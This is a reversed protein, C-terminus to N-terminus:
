AAEKRENSKEGKERREFFSIRRGDDCKRGEIGHDGNEDADSEKMLPQRGPLSNSDRESKDGASKKGGLAV